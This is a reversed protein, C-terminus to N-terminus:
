KLKLGLHLAQELQDRLKKIAMIPLGQKFLRPATTFTNEIEHITQSDNKAYKALLCWMSTPGDDVDCKVSIDKNKGCKFTATIKAMEKQKIQTLIETFFQKSQGVYEEM